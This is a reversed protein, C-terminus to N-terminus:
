TSFSDSAQNPGALDFLGLALLLFSWWWFFYGIELGVEATSLVYWHANVVFAAAAAWAVM